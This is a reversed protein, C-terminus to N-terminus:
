ADGEGDNALARLADVDFTRVPGHGLGEYRSRGYYM